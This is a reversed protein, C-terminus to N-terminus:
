AVQSGQRGSLPLTISVQITNTNISSKIVMPWLGNVDVLPEGLILLTM